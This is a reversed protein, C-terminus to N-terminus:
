SSYEGETADQANEVIHLFFPSLLFLFSFIAILLISVLDKYQGITVQTGDPLAFKLNSLRIWFNVGLIRKQIIHQIQFAPFLVSPHSQAISEFDRINIGDDVCGDIVRDVDSLIKDANKNNRGYIQAFMGKLEDKSMIGSGDNDYLDFAFVLLTGPSHTCYNWVSVTFEGFDIHGSNNEDFISFSRRIFANNQLRLYTLLEQLEVTGSGDVDIRNFIRFLYDFERRTMHLSVYVHQWERWAKEYVASHAFCLVSMRLSCNSFTGGM